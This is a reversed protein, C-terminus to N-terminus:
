QLIRKAVVWCVPNFDDTCNIKEKLLGDRCLQIMGRSAIAQYLNYGGSHLLCVHSDANCGESMDIPKRNYWQRAKKAGDVTESGGVFFLGNYLTTCEATSGEDAIPFREEDLWCYARTVKQGDVIKESTLSVTIDKVGVYLDTLVITEDGFESAVTGINQESSWATDIRWLRCFISNHGTVYIDGSVGMDMKEYICDTDGTFVLKDNKIIVGRRVGEGDESYGCIYIDEGDAMMDCFHKCIAKYDTNSPVGNKWLVPGSATNGCAIIDNGIKVIGVISSGKDLRYLEASNKYIVPTQQEGGGENGGLYFDVVPDTQPDPNSKDCAAALCLGLIAVAAIIAKNIKKM